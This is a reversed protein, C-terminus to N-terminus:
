RPIMAGSLSTGGREDATIIQTALEVLTRVRMISLTEKKGCVACEVTREVDEGTLDLSVDADVLTEGASFAGPMAVVGARDCGPDYMCWRPDVRGRAPDYRKCLSCECDFGYREKLERQRLHRPLSVDIYSTLIQPNNANSWPIQLASVEQGPQVDSILIVKM